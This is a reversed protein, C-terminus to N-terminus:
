ILNRYIQIVKEIPKNFNEKIIKTIYPSETFILNLLM